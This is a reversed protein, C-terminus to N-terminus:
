GGIEKAHIVCGPEEDDACWRKIAHLSAVQSDDGICAAPGGAGAQMADLVGRALKDVDPTSRNDPYARVKATKPRRFRFVLSVQVPGALLSAPQCKAVAAEVARLWKALDSGRKGKAETVIPRCGKARRPCFATMNGKSKPQGVVDLTIAGGM